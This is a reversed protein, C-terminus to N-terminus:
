VALVEERVIHLHIIKPMDSEDFHCSVADRVMLRLEPLTDAETFISDGFGRAACGSETM